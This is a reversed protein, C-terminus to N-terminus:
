REMGFYECRYGFQLGRATEFSPELVIRAEHGKKEPCDIVRTRCRFNLDSGHPYVREVFGPECSPAAASKTKPQAVAPSVLLVALTLAAIAAREVV